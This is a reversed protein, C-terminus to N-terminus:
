RHLRPGVGAPIYVVWGVHTGDEDLKGFGNLKVSPIPNWHQPLKLKERLARRTARILREVGQLTCLSLAAGLEAPTAAPKSEIITRLLKLQDEAFDFWIGRFRFKGPAFAWLNRQTHVKMREVAQITGPLYLKWRTRAGEGTVLVPNWEAPLGLYKRLNERVRNMVIAELVYLNQKESRRSDGTVAAIEKLGVPGATEALLKLVKLPNHQIIFWVGRFCVHKQQFLWDSAPPTAASKFTVDQQKEDLTKLGERFALPVRMKSVADRVEDLANLYFTETVNAPAHQLLVRGMGRDIRDIESCATRRVDHLTFQNEIGAENLIERWTAGYRGSSSDMMPLLMKRPSWTREIHAVAVPHLPIFAEKGTKQATLHLTREKLDIQDMELAFLDSKRLGTFYALVLLLRWIQAAPFEARVPYGAVRCAQYFLSLEDQTIRRPLGRTVKLPKMYPVREIIGLGAPNGTVPPGIRRLYSRLQRWYSNITVPGLGAAKAADRFTTLTENTIASVPPNEPVFAEWSNLVYRCLKLTSPSLDEKDYHKEFAERLTLAADPPSTFM